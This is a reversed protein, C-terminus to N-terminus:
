VETWDEHTGAGEKIQDLNESPGGFFCLVGGDSHYTSTYLVQGSESSCKFINVMQSGNFTSLIWKVSFTSMGEIDDSIEEPSATVEEDVLSKFLKTLEASIKEQDTMMM